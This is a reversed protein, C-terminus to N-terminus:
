LQSLARKLEAFNNIEELQASRIANRGFRYLNATLVVNAAVQPSLITRQEHELILGQISEEQKMGKSIAMADHRRALDYKRIFFYANSLNRHLAMRVQEMDASTKKSTLLHTLEQEWTATVSKLTDEAEKTIGFQMSLGFAERARDFARNANDFRSNEAAFYFLPFQLDQYDLASNNQIFEEMQKRAKALLQKELNALWASKEREFRTKLEANGECAGQGYFSAGDTALQELHLVRNKRQDTIRFIIEPGRYDVAFYHNQKAKGNCQLTEMAANVAIIETKGQTAYEFALADYAIGDLSIRPFKMVRADVSISKVAVAQAFTASMGAIIVLGACCAKLLWNGLM